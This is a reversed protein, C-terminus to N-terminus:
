MQVIGFSDTNVKRENVKSQLDKWDPEKIVDGQQNHGGDVFIIEDLEPLGYDRGYKRVTDRDCGILILSARAGKNEVCANTALTTSLSVLSVKKLLNSSMQDLTNIIGLRLDEKITISKANDLVKGTNFDYIVADTYTGGTDIGLGLRM